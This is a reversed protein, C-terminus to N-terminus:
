ASIEQNTTPEISILDKVKELVNKTREITELYDKIPQQTQVIQELSRLNNELIDLQINVQDRYRM